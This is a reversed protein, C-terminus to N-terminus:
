VSGGQNSATDDEDKDNIEKLEELLQRDEYYYLDAEDYYGLKYKLNSILQFFRQDPHDYWLEELLGLIRPIREKPREKSNEFMEIDALEANLRNQRHERQVYIDILQAQTRIRELQNNITRGYAIASVKNKPPSALENFRALVSALAPDQLADIVAIDKHAEEIGHRILSAIYENM